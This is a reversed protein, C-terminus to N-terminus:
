IAKMYASLNNLQRLQYPKYRKEFEESYGNTAVHILDLLLEIRKSVFGYVGEGNKCNLLIKKADTYNEKAIMWRAQLIMQDLGNFGVISNYKEYLEHFMSEQRGRLLLNFLATYMHTFRSAPLKATRRVYDIECSYSYYKKALEYASELDDVLKYQYAYDYMKGLMYYIDWSREIPHSSFAVTEMDEITCPLGEADRVVEMCNLIDSFRQEALKSDGYTPANYHFLVVLEDLMKSRTCILELGCRALGYCAKIYTHHLSKRDDDGMQDYSRIADQYLSFAKAKKDIITSFEITPSFSSSSNYLLYAYRYYDGVNGGLNLLKEFIDIATQECEEKSYVMNGRNKRLWLGYYNYERYYLYALGRLASKNDEQGAMSLVMRYATEALKVYDNHDEIAVSARSYVFGIKLLDEASNFFKDPINKEAGVEVLYNKWKEIDGFSTKDEVNKQVTKMAM